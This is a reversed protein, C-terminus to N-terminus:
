QLIPKLGRVGMDRLTEGATPEFLGNVNVENWEFSKNTSLSLIVNTSNAKGNTVVLPKANGNVDVFAATVVCSGQPIPSTSFLPNPVTTAGAPAQGSFVQGLTEFAWYGQQKNANVVQSETKITYSGIYTNYGIFGVATGTFMTNNFMYKIDANQYALSVRIYEYTGNPIQAVDIRVFEEGAAKKIAKSFDIAMSGGTTTETAKYLVAGSGLATFANPALEIYHASISNFLPSQAANGGAVTAPQGLNNLRAQTSDFKFSFRLSDTNSTNNDTKKCSLLFVIALFPFLPTTKM